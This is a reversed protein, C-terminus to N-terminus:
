SQRLGNAVTPSPYRSLRRNCWPEYEQVLRDQRASRQLPECVEFVFGTPQRQSLLTGTERTHALLAGRIDASEGIFVWEQANSIGYIGSASPAYTQVGSTSFPRPIIERFPM